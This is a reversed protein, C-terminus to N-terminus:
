YPPIAEKLKNEAATPFGDSNLKTADNVIRKLRDVKDKKTQSLGYTGASSVFSKFYDFLDNCFIYYHNVIMNELEYSSYVWGNLANWYKMVRILPRILGKDNTNKNSLQNNFANPHTTQWTSYDNLAAPIQYSDWSSLIAPVLEIKIKSLELVITPHSQYIESTTYKALAFDKLYNLYTSPQKSDDAFVIMYDVDSRSDARRPMLTKRKFSGFTFKEKVVGSDFYWILKVNLAMIHNDIVSRESQTIILNGATALLHSNLSM